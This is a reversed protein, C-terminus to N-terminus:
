KNKGLDLFTPRLRWKIQGGERSEERKKKGLRDQSGQNQEVKVEKDRIRKSGQTKLEQLEEKTMDNDKKGSTGKPRSVEIAPLKSGGMRVELKPM